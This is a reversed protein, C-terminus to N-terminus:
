LIKKYKKNNENIKEKKIYKKAEELTIQTYIKSAKKSRINIGMNILEFRRYITKEKVWVCKSTPTVWEKSNKYLEKDINKTEGTIINKATVKGSTATYYKDRNNFFENKPILIKKDEGKKYCHVMNSDHRTYNGKKYEECTVLIKVGDKFCHVMNKAVGVLKKEYFEKCSVSKVIGDEIGVAKGKNVSLLEGSLYRPDNKNVYFNNGKSDKVVVKNKNKLGMKNKSKESHTKGYMPNLEGAVDRGYCGNITAYSENFYRNNLVVKHLKQLRLEEKLAEKSTEHYSLIRTRFLHKNERQEKLYIEKYKKSQISGNYGNLVKEEYSSGIYWPPLKDGKYYTIYVVQKM